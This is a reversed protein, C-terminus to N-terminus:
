LGLAEKLLEPEFGVLMRGDIKITPTSSIGADMLERLAARDARVDKAVYPVQMRSLFEM